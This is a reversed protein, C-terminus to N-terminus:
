LEWPSPVLQQRAQARRASRREAALMALDLTPDRYLPTSLASTVDFRTIGIDQLMRDDLALLGATQRRHWFAVALQRVQRLILTVAKLAAAPISQRAEAGHAVYSM